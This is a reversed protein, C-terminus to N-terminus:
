IHMISCQICYINQKSSNSQHTASKYFNTKSTILFALLPCQNCELGRSVPKFYVAAARAALSGSLVVQLSSQAQPILCTSYLLLLHSLCITALVLSCNYGNMPLHGLSTPGTWHLTRQRLPDGKSINTRSQLQPELASRWVQNLVSGQLDKGPEKYITEPPPPLGSIGLSPDQDEGFIVHVASPNLVGAAPSGRQYLEIM